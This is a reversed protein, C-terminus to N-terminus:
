VHSCLSVHVVVVICHLSGHEFITNFGGGGGRAEGAGSGGCSDIGKVNDYGGFMFVSGGIAALGPAIRAAPQVSGNASASGLDTWLASLPDYRHLDNLFSDGAWVPFQRSRPLCIILLVRM